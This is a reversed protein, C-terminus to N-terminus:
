QNSFASIGRSQKLGYKAHTIDTAESGRLSMVACDSHYPPSEGSGENGLAIFGISSIFGISGSCDEEWRSMMVCVFYKDLEFDNAHSKSRNFLKHYPNKVNYIM